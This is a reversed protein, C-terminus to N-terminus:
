TECNNSPHSEVCARSNAFIILLMDQFLDLQHNLKLGNSFIHDDFQIMGGPLSSFSFYINSNGGGLFELPMKRKGMRGWPVKESDLNDKSFCARKPFDNSGVM